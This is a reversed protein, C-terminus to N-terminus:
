DNKREDDRNPEFNLTNGNYFQNRGQEEARQDALTRVRVNRQDRVQQSQTNDEAGGEASANAVQQQQQAGGFGLFGGLVGMTGSVVRYGQNVVGGVLGVAGGAASSAVGVVGGSNRSYSEVYGRVPAIVFTCSGRIGLESLPLSEEAAEIKRNPLPTLILKFDYPINQTVPPPSTSSDHNPNPHNDLWPRIDDTITASPPFTTNLPSGDFLRVQVRVKNPPRIQSPTAISTTTNTEIASVIPEGAAAADNQKQVADRRRRDERDAKIQNKIREREDRAKQERDKQIRRYEAQQTRQSESLSEYSPPAASSATQAQTPPLQTPAQRSTSAQPYVSGYTPPVTASTPAAASQSTSAQASTKLQAKIAAAPLRLLLRERATDSLERKSGPNLSSLRRVEDKFIPLRGLVQLQAEFIQQPTKGESKLGETYERLAEYANNPLRPQGTSSPLDLYGSQDAQDSVTDPQAETETSSNTPEQSSKEAGTSSVLVDKLKQGVDEVPVEAAQLNLALSANRILIIAPTSNIPCFPTLFGAEQSGAEIKIAVTQQRITDEVAEEFM